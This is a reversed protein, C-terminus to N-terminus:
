PEGDERKTEWGYVGPPGHRQPILGEWDRLGDRAWGLEGGLIIADHGAVVGALAGPSSGATACRLM